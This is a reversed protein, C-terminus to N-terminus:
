RANPVPNPPCVDGLFGAGGCYTVDQLQIALGDPDTLYLEPTGGDAGGRNPMRLSIYTVLPERSATPLPKLGFGTLTKTVATPDFGTMSMCAHDIRPAAPPGGGRGPGGGIFMLFHVGPGIGYSPAAGQYSQITSGVLGQYFAVTKAQDAVGVTFHSMDRVAILGKTPAAEVTRCDTGNAGGGGCYAVDHLQFVIGSPDSVYVDSPPPGSAASHGPRPVVRVTMPQASAPDAARTVGNEALVKVVRDISFDEVGMGFASISPREDAAAQKLALFQPGNGIRLFLTTGQRAQVPMGFLDQYFKLSRGVDSVTLTLQSLGRVKLSAPTSQAALRPALALAPLAYLFHRRDM